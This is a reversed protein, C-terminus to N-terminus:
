PTIPKPKIVLDLSFLMNSPNIVLIYSIDRTVPIEIVEFGLSRFHQIQRDLENM